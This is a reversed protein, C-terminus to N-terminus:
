RYYGTMLNVRRIAGALFYRWRKKWRSEPGDPRARNFARILIRAALSPATM